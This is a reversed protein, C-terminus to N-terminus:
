QTSGFKLNTTEILNGDAYIKSETEKGFYFIAAEVLQLQLTGKRIIAPFANMTVGTEVAKKFTIYWSTLNAYDDQTLFSQANLYAFLTLTGFLVLVIRKM